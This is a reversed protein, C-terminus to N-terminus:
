LFDFVVLLVHAIFVFFLMSCRMLLVEKENSRASIHVKTMISEARWRRVKVAVLLLLLGVSLGIAVIGLTTLM